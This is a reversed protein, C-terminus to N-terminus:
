PNLSAQAAEIAKKANIKGYARKTDFGGNSYDADTGGVRDTTSILITRIQNFTLNPNVSLMLAVLGSTTPAAFSTGSTLTYNNLNENTYSLQNNDNEGASGSQDLSLIGLLGDNLSGGGPAIVDITSGYNSYSTVDNKVSSAGVGIVSSIESLDENGAQDLDVGENGSAFVVIIGDDKLQNIRDSITQPINGLGWSCNIVKAGNDKAYNFAKLIDLESLNNDEFDLNILILETNPAVGVEDGVIIGAVALGHYFTDGDADSINSTDDMANYAKYIKNKINPHNVEFDEDIVAVKIAEGNTQKGKTIAWAEELSIHSENNINNNTKYTSNINKNIHWAFQFMNDDIVSNVVNSISTSSTSGGGGGGCATLSIALTLAISYKQINILKM